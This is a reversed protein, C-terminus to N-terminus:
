TPTAAPLPAICALVLAAAGPKAAILPGEVKWRRARLARYDVPRGDLYTFTCGAARCIAHAGAIDWANAGDDQLAAVIGGFIAPYVLHLAASGHGRVKGPFRSLDFSRHARSSIALGSLRSLSELPAPAAVERAGDRVRNRSDVALMLGLRPAHVIGAVPVLEADLVGVSVAWTPLGQSFSDTGDIPDIVFTWPRGDAFHRVREETVLNAEPVRAHIRECLFDETDRDVETVVSGDEKYMREAFELQRQRRAARRGAERVVAQLWRIDRM